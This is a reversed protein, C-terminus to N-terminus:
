SGTRLGAPGSRALWGSGDGLAVAARRRVLAALGPRCTDRLSSGSTRRQQLAGSLLPTLPKPLSTKHQPIPHSPLIPYSPISSPASTPPPTPFLSFAPLFQSPHPKPRSPPPPTTNLTHHSTPSYAPLTSHPPHIHYLPNPLLHSPQSPLLRRSPHTNLHSSALRHAPGLM